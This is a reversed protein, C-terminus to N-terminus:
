SGPRFEACRFGLYGNRYSPGGHRRYAARAFRAADNWSGGRVVRPAFASESSQVDTKENYDKVWLM